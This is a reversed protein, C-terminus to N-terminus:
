ENIGPLWYQLLLCFVLLHCPWRKNRRRWPLSVKWSLRSRKSDSALCYFIFFYIFKWSSLSNCIVRWTWVVFMPSLSALHIAWLFFSSGLDGLREDIGSSRCNELEIGQLHCPSFPQTPPRRTAYPFETEGVGEVIDLWLLEKKDLVCAHM